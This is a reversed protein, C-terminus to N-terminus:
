ALGLLLTRTELFIKPKSRARVKSLAFRCADCLDNHCSSPKVTHPWVSVPKLSRQLPCLWSPWHMSQIGSLANMESATLMCCTARLQTGKLKDVLWAVIRSEYNAKAKAKNTCRQLHVLHWVMACVGHQVWSCHLCLSYTECTQRNSSFSVHCSLRM